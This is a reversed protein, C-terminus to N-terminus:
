PQLDCPVTILRRLIEDVIEDYEKKTEMGVLMNNIFAAVKEENILDRLIENMIAQFTTPLRTMEFFM